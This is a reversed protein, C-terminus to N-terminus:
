LRGRHSEGGPSARPPLTERTLSGPRWLRGGPTLRRWGVRRGLGGFHRWRWVLGVPYGAMKAVDGWGRLLLALLLLPGLSRIPARAERERRWLRRAVPAAYVAGLLVAVAQEAPRRRVIAVALACYTGYRLVHRHPWLGAKGDGRAYRFYQRWYSRFGSRPAFEVVADPVFRFRAGARQLQLDLILDECHDLWEPYRLGADLWERRLAISRSSPLFRTSDIENMDPLTAASLAREWATVTRARFGGAAVDVVDDAFTEILRGLWMPDAVTGADTVVIISGLSADIARNRGTSISADGVQLLRKSLPPQWDQLAEWTGDSSGGDVIVVEDPPRVQREIGALWAGLHERENLVTAILSVQLGVENSM